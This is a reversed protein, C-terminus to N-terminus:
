KVRSEVYERLAVANNREREKSGYLFTVRGSQVNDLLSQVADPNFDLEEFYQRKFEGWLAPDHQKYRKRLENSPSANKAWYDIRADTKTLGRPWLRDVLIRRGDEPSAPEYVRKINIKMKRGGVVSRLLEANYRKPLMQM